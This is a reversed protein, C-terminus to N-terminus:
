VNHSLKKQALIVIFIAQNQLYNVPFYIRCTYWVARCLTCVNTVNQVMLVENCQQNVPYMQVLLIPVEYCQQNVTVNQVLLVTSCQIATSQICKPGATSGPMALVRPANPSATCLIISLVSTLNLGPTCWLMPLVGPVSPGVISRLMALM